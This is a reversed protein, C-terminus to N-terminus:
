AAWLPHLPCVCMPCTLTLGLCALTPALSGMRATRVLVLESSLSPPAVLAFAAPLTDYRRGTATAGPTKVGDALNVFLSRAVVTTYTIEVLHESFDEGQM